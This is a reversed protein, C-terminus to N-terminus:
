WIAKWIRKAAAKAGRAALGPTAAAGKGVALAGNKVDVAGTKVASGTATGVTQVGGAATGAADATTQVVSASGNGIQKGAYRIAGAHADPTAWSLALASLLIVFIKTRM